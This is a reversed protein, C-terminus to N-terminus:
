DHTTTEGGTAPRVRSFIPQSLCCPWLTGVGHPLTLAPLWLLPLGPALQQHANVPKSLPVKASHTGALMQVWVSTGLNESAARKLEQFKLEHLWIFCFVWESSSTFSISHGNHGEDFWLCVFCIFMYWTHCETMQLQISYMNQAKTRYRKISVGLVARPLSAQVCM